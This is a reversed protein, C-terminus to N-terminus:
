RPWSKFKTAGTMIPSVMLTTTITVSLRSSFRIMFSRVVAYLWRPSITMSPLATTFFTPRYGPWEASWSADDHYSVPSTSTQVQGDADGAPPGVASGAVHCASPGRAPSSPEHRLSGPLPQRDARFFLCDRAALGGPRASFPGKPGVLDLHDGGGTLVTVDHGDVDVGGLVVLRNELTAIMSRADDGTAGRRGAPGSSRASTHCTTWSRGTNRVAGSYRRHCRCQPAVVASAAASNGPSLRTGAACYRAVLAMVM